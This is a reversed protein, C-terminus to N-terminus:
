AVGIDQALLRVAAGAFLDALGGVRGEEALPSPCEPRSCVSVAVPSYTPSVGWGGRGRLPPPVNSARASPRRWRRIIKPPGSVGGTGACASPCRQICYSRRTQGIVSRKHGPTAM